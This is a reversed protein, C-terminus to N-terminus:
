KLRSSSFYTKFAPNCAVQLTFEDFVFFGAENKIKTERKSLPSDHRMHKKFTYKPIIWDDLREFPAVALAFVFCSYTWKNELGLRSRDFM